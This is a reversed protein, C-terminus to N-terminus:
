PSDFRRWLRDCQIVGGNRMTKTIALRLGIDGGASDYLWPGLLGVSRCNMLSLSRFLNTSVTDVEQMTAVAAFVSSAVHTSM